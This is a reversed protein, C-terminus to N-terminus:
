PNFGAKPFVLECTVSTGKLTFLPGAWEKFAFTVAGTLSISAGTPASIAFTEPIQLANPVKPLVPKPFRSTVEPLFQLGESLLPLANKRQQSMLWHNFTAPAANESRRLRTRPQYLSDLPFPLFPSSFLSLSCPQCQVTYLASSPILLPSVSLLGHKYPHQSPRGGQLHECETCPSVARTIECTSVAGLESKWTM